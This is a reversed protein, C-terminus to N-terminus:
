LLCGARDVAYCAPHTYVALMDQTELVAHSHRPVVGHLIVPVGQLQQGTRCREAAAVM